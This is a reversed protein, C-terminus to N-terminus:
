PELFGLAPGLGQKCLKPGFALRTQASKRTHTHIYIYVYMGTHTHRHIYMHVYAQLRLSPEMAAAWCGGKHALPLRGYLQFVDVDEPAAATM